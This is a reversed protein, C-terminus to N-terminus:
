LYVSYQESNSPQAKKCWLHKQVLYLCVYTHVYTCIFIDHMCVCYIFKLCMCAHTCAANCKHSTHVYMHIYNHNYKCDPNHVQDIDYQRESTRIRYCYFM